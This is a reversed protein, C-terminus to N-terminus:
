NNNGSLNRLALPGNNIALQVQKLCEASVRLNGHSNTIKLRLCNLCEM